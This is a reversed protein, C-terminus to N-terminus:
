AAMSGAGSHPGPGTEPEAGGGTGSGTRPGTGAGPEPATGDADGRGGGDTDPLAENGNPASPLDSKSISGSHSTRDRGGADGAGAGGDGAGGNGAGGNGDGVEDGVEDHNPGGSGRHGEDATRAVIEAQARADAEVTGVGGRATYTAPPFAMWRPIWGHRGDRGGNGELCDRIITKMTSTKERGNAAAAESGAVEALMALLVERDRLTDFFAADAEWWREMKVELECGVAEMIPTGAALTEGMVVAAIDCVQPETLAMLRAFITGLAQGHTYAGTVSSTDADYGMLDMIARRRVDFVAQGWSKAVSDQVADSRSAQPEARVSWLPSGAIAHAVMLRVAVWPADLLAARVAAHRHLDLYSGTVSSVEPRAAGADQGVEVAQGGGGRKHLCAAERSTLYGEHAIVEGNARVEIYVRGGKRKAVKEYEWSHFHSGPALVVADGWGADVYEARRAEIATNQLAWFADADAFYSDEGFLDAVVALGSQEAELLAFRVPISQGGFLWGKLQHGRPAYGQPDDFLALWAKQQSKSALTLHRVTGADIEERRYLDRIRPLLNGLALIRRVALDPMGFTAAIQDPRRGEKVLRIFAEWRSVEDPELRACNEILSAEIADADDGEDLIACAILQAAAVPDADHGTDPPASSQAAAVGAAVPVNSRCGGNDVGPGDAAVTVSGGAIDTVAGTGSNAGAGTVTGTVACTDASDAAETSAPAPGAKYECRERAVIQAAHFRRAGAVIEFRPNQTIMSGGGSKAALAGNANSAANAVPDAGGEGGSESVSTAARGSGAPMAIPRVIIPQIVGRSRVTPPIDSVDPAKRSHRMNAKSVTLQTLSIFELRM